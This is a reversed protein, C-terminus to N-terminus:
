STCLVDFLIKPLSHSTRLLLEMRHFRASQEVTQMTGPITEAKVTIAGGVAIQIAIVQLQQSDPDICRVCIKQQPVALIEFMRNVAHKAAPVAVTITAAAFAATSESPQTPTTKPCVQGNEDRSFFCSCFLHNFVAAQRLLQIIGHFQSIHYCPVRRVFLGRQPLNEPNEPDEGTDDMYMSQQRQYTFRLQAEGLCHVPKRPSDMTQVVAAHEFDTTLTLLLDEVSHIMRTSTQAFRNTMDHRGMRRHQEADFIEATKNRGNNRDIGGSSHSLALISRLCFASVVLPQLLTISFAVFPPANTSTRQALATSNEMVAPDFSLLPGCLVAGPTAEALETTSNIMCQSQLHSSFQTVTQLGIVVDVREEPFPPDSGSTEYIRVCVGDSRPFKEQVLGYGCTLRELRSFGATKERTILELLDSEFAELCAGATKGVISQGNDNANNVSPQANIQCTALSTRGLLLGLSLCFKPLQKQVLLHTLDDRVQENSSSGSTVTVTVKGVEGTETHIVVDILVDDSSLAVIVKRENRGTEYDVYRQLGFIDAVEKLQRMGVLQDELDETTTVDIATERRAMLQQAMRRCTSLTRRVAQRKRGVEDLDKLIVLSRKARVTHGAAVLKSKSELVQSVLQMQDLFKRRLITVDLCGCHHVWGDDIQHSGKSRMEESASRLLDGITQLAAAATDHPSLHDPM